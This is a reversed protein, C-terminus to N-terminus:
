PLTTIKSARAFRGPERGDRAAIALTLAQIPLIELMTKMAAPADPLRFPSLGDAGILEARGGIAGIDLVLRRHLGAVSPEGTFVLVMITGDVMELPGHRFAAASMGEAHCRAAEKLILGGTGVSALSQGRGTIFVSRVGEILPLLATVHDRWANLYRQVMPAVALIDAVAQSEDGGTLHMGLWHLVALTALYTKCSVTAESGAMLMLTTHAARGLTSSPDNTIGIVHGFGVVHEVLAAIEAGEGSQSVAVLLTDHHQYAPLDVLLESTEIWTSDLRHRRLALYLPYAAHHSSGMGALVVRRLGGGSLRQCMAEPFPTKALATAIRVLVDAQALLDDLYPGPLALLRADQVTTM